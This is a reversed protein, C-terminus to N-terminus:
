VVCIHSVLWLFTFFRASLAEVHETAASRFQYDRRSSYVVNERASLLLLLKRNRLVRLAFLTETKDRNFIPNLAKRVICNFTNWNSSAIKLYCIGKKCPSLQLLNFSKGYPGHSPMTEAAGALSVVDDFVKM